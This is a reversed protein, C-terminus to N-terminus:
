GYAQVMCAFYIYFDSARIGSDEEFDGFAVIFGFLPKSIERNQRLEM